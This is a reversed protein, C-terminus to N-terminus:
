MQIDFCDDDVSTYTARYSYQYSLFIISLVTSLWEFDTSCMQNDPALHEWAKGKLYLVSIVGKRKKREEKKEEVAM